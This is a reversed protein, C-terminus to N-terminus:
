RSEWWFWRWRHWRHFAITGFIHGAVKRNDRPLLVIGSHLHSLRLSLQNGTGCDCRLHSLLAEDDRGFGILSLLTNLNQPIDQPLVVRHVGPMNEVGATSLSRIRAHHHPSRVCRMHLLGDFLHDDYYRTTGTVHGIIDQRITPKGIENLDDSREDAFLDKRLELSSM